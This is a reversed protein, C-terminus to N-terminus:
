DLSFDAIAGGSRPVPRCSVPHKRASVCRMLTTPFLGFPLRQQM